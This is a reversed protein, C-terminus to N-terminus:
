WAIPVHSLIAAAAVCSTSITAHTFIAISTTVIAYVLFTMSTTSIACTPAEGKSRGAAAELTEYIFCWRMKVRARARACLCVDYKGGADGDRWRGPRCSTTLVGFQGGAHAHIFSFQSHQQQQQQHLLCAFSTVKTRIHM